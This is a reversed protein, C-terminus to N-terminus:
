ARHRLDVSRQLRTGDRCVADPDQQRLGVAYNWSSAQGDPLRARARSGCRDRVRVRWLPVSGPAACGSRTAESRTAGMTVNPPHFQGAVNASMRTTRQHFKARRAASPSVVQRCHEPFHADLSLCSGRWWARIPSRHAIDALRDVQQGLDPPGLPTMNVRTSM